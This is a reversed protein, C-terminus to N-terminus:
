RADAIHFVFVHGPANMNEHGEGKMNGEFRRDDRETM